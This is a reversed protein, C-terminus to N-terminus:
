ADATLPNWAEGDYQQWETGTWKTDYGEHKGNLVEVCAPDTSSKACNVDVKKEWRKEGVAQHFEGWASSIKDLLAQDPEYAKGDWVDTVDSPMDGKDIANKLLADASALEKDNPLYGKAVPMGEYGATSVDGSKLNKIYDMDYTTDKGFIENLWKQHYLQQLRAQGNNEASKLEAVASGLGGAAAMHKKAADDVLSQLRLSGAPIAYDREELEAVSDRPVVVVILAVAFALVSLLGALGAANGLRMGGVKQM